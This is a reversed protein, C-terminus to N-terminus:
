DRVRLGGRYRTNYKKFTEAPVQDLRLGLTQWVSDDAVPAERTTAEALQLKMDRSKGDHRVSVTLEEGSKRGILVREFDLRRCTKNGAISTVVDGSQLGMRAAPSSEEVSSVVLRPAEADSADGRVTGGHWVKG